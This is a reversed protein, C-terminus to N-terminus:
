GEGLRINVRVEWKLCFTPRPSPYTTLKIIELRFHGGPGHASEGNVKVLPLYQVKTEPTRSLCRALPGCCEPLTETLPQGYNTFIPKMYTTNTLFFMSSYFLIVSPRRRRFYGGKQLNVRWNLASTVWKRVSLPAMDGNTYKFFIPFIKWFRWKWETEIKAM